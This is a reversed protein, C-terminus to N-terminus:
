RGSPLAVHTWREPAIFYGAVGGMLMALITNAVGDATNQVGGIDAPDDDLTARSYIIGAIMGVGMGGLTWRMRARGRSVELRDITALPVATVAAERLTLTDAAVSQVRGVTWGAPEPLLRVRVRADPRLLPSSFGSQATLAAPALLLLILFVAAVRQM